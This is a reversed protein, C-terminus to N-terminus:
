DGELNDGDTVIIVAKYRSPTQDYEKIAEEMARGLNTGGRSVSDTDLDQLSLLFGNYDVTLPCFLFADGAFAILGIRDGKLKKVLDQVALKTRELRNPKVDQALMSKSVDIAVIIDLGQRKIEQWEYGWQPRALALISFGITLGLLVRRFFELQPEFNGIESLLHHQAFPELLNQKNKAFWSLVGALI